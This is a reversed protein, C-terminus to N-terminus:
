DIPTVKVKGNSAMEIEHLKDLMNRKYTEFGPPPSKESVYYTVELTDELQNLINRFPKSLSYRGEKTLDLRGFKKDALLNAFITVCVAVVVAVIVMTDRSAKNIAM